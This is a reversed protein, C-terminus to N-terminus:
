KYKLHQIQFVQMGRHALFVKLCHELTNSFDESAGAAAPATLSISDLLFIDMGVDAEQCTAHPALGESLEGTLSCCQGWNM